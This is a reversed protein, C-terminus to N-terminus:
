AECKKLLKEYLKKYDPEKEIQKETKQPTRRNSNDRWNWSRDESLHAAHLAKTNKGTGFRKQSASM